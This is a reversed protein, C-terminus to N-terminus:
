ERRTDLSSNEERFLKTSMQLWEDMSKSTSSGSNGEELIHTCFWNGFQSVNLVHSRPNGLHVPSFQASKPDECSDKYTTNRQKTSLLIPKLGEISVFSLAGFRQAFVHALITTLCDHAQNQCTGMSGCSFRKGVGWKHQEEKGAEWEIWSEESSQEATLSHLDIPSIGGWSFGRGGELGISFDRIYNLNLLYHLQPWILTWNAWSFIEDRLILRNGKLQNYM